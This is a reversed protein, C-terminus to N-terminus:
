RVFTNKVRRSRIFYPVWICCALFSRFLAKLTSEGEMERAFPIQQLLIYDILGVVFGGVYLLIMLAPVTRKKGYFQTILYIVYAILAINYVTEFIVVPAWMEHYVVSESSILATWTEHEYVPLINVFVNVITMILTLFIGIQVLILWGGLGSIGLGQNAIQKTLNTEMM